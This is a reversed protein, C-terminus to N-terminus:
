TPRTSFPWCRRTPRRTGSSLHAALGGRGRQRAFRAVFTAENPQQAPGPSWRDLAGTAVDYGSLGNIELNGDPTDHTEVLWAVSHARGTFRDDIEPLDLPVDSLQTASWTLDAGATDLEWRTLLSLSDNIDGGDDFMSDMRSVDLVIRDGDRHANTGHFVYGNDIEVWRMDTADGGLPM